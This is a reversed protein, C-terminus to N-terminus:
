AGTLAAGDKRAVLPHAHRATRAKASKRSSTM